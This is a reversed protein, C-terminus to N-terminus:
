RYQIRRINQNRGKEGFGLERCLGMKVNDGGM